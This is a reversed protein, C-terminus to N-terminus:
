WTFDIKKKNSEETKPCLCVTIENNRSDGDSDRHRVEEEEKKM